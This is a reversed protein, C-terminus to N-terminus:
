YDTFTVVTTADCPVWVGSTEVVSGYAYEVRLDYYRDCDDVALVLEDGPYLTEGALLDNGWEPQSSPSAYAYWVDDTAAADNRMVLTGAYVGDHGADHCGTFGFLVALFFATLINRRM